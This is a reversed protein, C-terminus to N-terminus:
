KKDSVDEYDADVVKGKEAEDHSSGQNETTTSHDAHPANADGYMAEGLKMSSQMLAETKAKIKESDESELVEKLDAVASEISSKTADDVKDGHETLAKETSYIM